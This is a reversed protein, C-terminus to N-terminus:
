GFISVRRGTWSKCEPEEVSGAYRFRMEPAVVQWIEKGEGDTKGVAQIAQIPVEGGAPGPLTHFHLHDM